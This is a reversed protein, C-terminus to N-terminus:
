GLTAARAQTIVADLVGDGVLAQRVGWRNTNGTKVAQAKTVLADASATLRQAAQDDGRASAALADLQDVLAGGWYTSADLWPSAEDVFASAVHGGRIVKAADRIQVAYARLDAMSRRHDGANWRQWFAKTKAALVPAQPQWPTPGFTPALHELDAFVALAASARADGGALRALAQPWSREPSYGADNWAFDTAGFEAVESAAEQNMPNAVIGNLYQSLGAQRQAYPALLLRGASQEYDNVPYNDWLFVKRGYVTSVQQAEDTTVSPPVVDTGTWQVVVSPDLNERLETKYPSDKLDSYETPVTQLPRAGDHTKIFGTTIANLLSVQAKGAAAQGPTGFTTQDAACNWKTYSIDDFPISFSRVGLDYVSQLKAKVAAIDDPSSFCISVGPSLAYTFDVHHATASQVLQGLTALEGAPYPDRWQARLYADDKASYVYTNAKVEGLFAIQRLRDATSWPPGYFGEISGRLSMNPWDRVAVGSIAWGHGSPVFLQRLTQAGYYQGSGDRGGIVIEGGATSLAYGEAQDPVPVARTVDARGAGGLRVVLAHSHRPERGPAVVTVKRAGHERLLATVLDRAAADTGSDAVLVVEDSVPVDGSDRGLSQPTPTVIPLAHQEPAAAAPQTATALAAISAGAALVAALRRTRSRATM